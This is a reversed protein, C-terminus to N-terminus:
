VRVRFGLGEVRPRGRRRHQFQEPPGLGWVGVRLPWVRFGM